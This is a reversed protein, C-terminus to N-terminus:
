KWFGEFSFMHPYWQYNSLHHNVVRFCIFVHPSLQHYIMISDHYIKEVHNNTVIIEEPNFLISSWFGSSPVQILMEHCLTNLVRQLLEQQKKEKAFQDVFVVTMHQWHISLNDVSIWSTWRNKTWLLMRMHKTQQQGIKPPYNMLEDVLIAWFSTRWSFKVYGNFIGMSITSEGM